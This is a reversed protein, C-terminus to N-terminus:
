SSTTYSVSGGYIGVNPGFGLDCELTYWYATNSVTAHAISSDTLRVTGLNASIGTAHVSALIQINAATSPALSRRALRCGSVERTADFDALTFQVRTVVAKNPLTVGCSFRSSGGGQWYRWHGSGITYATESDDPVFGTEGCSVAGTHLAAPAVSSADTVRGGQPALLLGGVVLALLTLLTVLRRPSALSRPDSSTFM